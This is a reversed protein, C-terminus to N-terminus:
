NVQTWYGLLEWLRQYINKNSGDIEIYVLFCVNKNEKITSRTQKFDFNKEQAGFLLHAFNWGKLFQEFTFSQFIGGSVLDM